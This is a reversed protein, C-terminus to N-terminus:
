EGGAVRRLISKAMELDADRPDQQFWVLHGQRDVVYFTASGVMAKFDRFTAKNEADMDFGAAGVYGLQGLEDRMEAMEKPVDTSSKLYSVTLMAMGKDESVFRSIPGLFAASREDGVRRFVLAVVRGAAEPLPLKESTVWGAELELPRPAPRGALEAIFELNARSRSLYISWAHPLTGREKELRELFTIHARFSEGAEEVKGLMLEAYGKRFGSYVHFTELNSHLKTGKAASEIRKPFEKLVHEANEELKALDGKALFLKWLNELFFPFSESDPHETLAKELLRIGDDFTELERYVAGLALKVEAVATKKTEDKLYDKLFREYAQKAKPFDKAGYAAQGILSLADDKLENGAPLAAEASEALELVKLTYERARREVEEQLEAGAYVAKLETLLQHRHRASMIQLLRGLLYKVEATKEPEVGAAACESLIGQCEKITHEVDSALKERQSQPVGLDAPLTDVFSRAAKYRAECAPSWTKAATGEPSPAPTPAPAPTGSEPTATATAARDLNKGYWYASLVAALGLVAAALLFRPPLRIARPRM